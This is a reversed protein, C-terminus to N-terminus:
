RGRPGGRFIAPRQQVQKNSFKGRQPGFKPHQAEVSKKHPKLGPDQPAPAKPARDKPDKPDDPNTM